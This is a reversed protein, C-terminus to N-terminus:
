FWHFIYGLMKNLYLSGGFYIRCVSMKVQKNRTSDSCVLLQLDIETEFPVLLLCIRDMFHPVYHLASIISLM